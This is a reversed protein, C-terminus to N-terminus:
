ENFNAGHLTDYVEKQKKIQKGLKKGDVDSSLVKESTFYNDYMEEETSEHYEHIKKLSLNDKTPPKEKEEIDRIGIPRLKRKFLDELQYFKCILEASYYNYGENSQLKKLAQKAVNVIRGFTYAREDMNQFLEIKAEMTKKPKEMENVLRHPEYFPHYVFNNEYGAKISERLVLIVKEKTTLEMEM